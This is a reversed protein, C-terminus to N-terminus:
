FLTVIIVIILCGVSLRPIIVAVTGLLGFMALIRPPIIWANVDAVSRLKILPVTVLGLLVFTAIIPAYDVFSNIQMDFLTGPLGSVIADVISQCTRNKLRFSSLRVVLLAAFLAMWGWNAFRLLIGIESKDKNDIQPADNGFLWEYMWFFVSPWLCVAAIAL